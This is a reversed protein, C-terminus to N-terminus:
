QCFREVFRNIGLLLRDRNMLRIRNTRVLTEYEAVDRSRIVRAPNGAAIALAPISGNVLSGAGIIAGDGITTGPLITVRAGLWVNDGITVPRFDLRDDWPLATPADINHNTSIVLLEHSAVCNAGITIGGQGDLWAGSNISTNPGIRINEPALLTCPWSVVADAAVLRLRTRTAAYGLLDHIRPVVRAGKFALRVLTGALASM